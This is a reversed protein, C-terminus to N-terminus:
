KLGTANVGYTAEEQSYGEYLLQDILGSRSFASYELYSKADKAAQLKWDARLADVGYTADSNSFGEYELQSILGTRSFAAYNLYSEASRRANSQNITEKVSSSATSKVGKNWVLKSGSRVCTFLVSGSKQTLGVKACKSGAKPGAASASVASGSLLGAILLVVTFRVKMKGGSKSTFSM